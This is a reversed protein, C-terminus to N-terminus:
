AIAFQTEEDEWSSKESLGWTNRYKILLGELRHFERQSGFCLVCTILIILSMNAPPSFLCVFLLVSALAKPQLLLNPNLPGDKKEFLWLHTWLQSVRVPFISDQAWLQPSMFGPRQGWVQERVYCWASLWSGRREWAAALLTVKAWDRTVERLNLIKTLLTQTICERGLLKSTSRGMKSKLDKIM